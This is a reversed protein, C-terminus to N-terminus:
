TKVCTVGGRTYVNHEGKLQNFDAALNDLRDTLKAQNENIQNLTRVTYWSVASILLGLVGSFAWWIAQGAEVTM